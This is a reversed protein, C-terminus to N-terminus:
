KHVYHFIEVGNYSYDKSEKVIYYKDLQRKIIGSALDGIWNPSIILWIDAKDKPLDKLKNLISENDSYLGIGLVSNANDKFQDIFKGNIRKGNRDIDKLPHKFEYKYYYWFPVIQNIPAFILTDSAQINAKIFGSAGRWDGSEEPTLLIHISILCTAMIFILTIRYAAISIRELGKAVLIYFAAVVAVFYRTLYIPLVLRSILFAGLIPIFLWLTLFVISGSIDKNESAPKRPSIIGLVCLFFLIGAGIRPIILRKADIEFGVGAHVQRYGGYSFSEFVDVLSRFNVKPIFNVENSHDGSLLIGLFIAFLLIIGQSVLWRKRHSVKNWTFILYISQAALNFLGYPHTFILLINTAIYALHLLRSGKKLIKLFLLVSLLALFVFLSYNRVEQSYYIHYTSLALLLSSLIGVRRNFLIKGIQFILIVSLIGFIVSLSRVVFEQSGFIGTWLKLLVFYVPRTIYRHSIMVKWPYEVYALSCAEDYWIVRRTLSYFRIWSAVLLIVFLANKQLFVAIKKLNIM